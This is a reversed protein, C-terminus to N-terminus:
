GLRVWCLALDVTHLRGGIRDRAEVVVCEVGAHTVANAVTLGTIGAGVVVVREIPHAAGAPIGAQLDDSKAGVESV